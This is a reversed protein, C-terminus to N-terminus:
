MLNQTALMPSKPWCTKPCASCSRSPRGSTAVLTRAMYEPIRSTTEIEAAWKAVPGFMQRYDIEQFAERDRTDRAIQGVLLIM